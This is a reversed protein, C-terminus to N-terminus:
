PQVLEVRLMGVSMCVSQVYMFVDCYLFLLLSLKEVYLTVMFDSSFDFLSVSLVIMLSKSSYKEAWRGPYICFFKMGRDLLGHHLNEEM